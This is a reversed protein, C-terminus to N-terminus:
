SRAELKGARIISRIYDNVTSKGKGVKNAIEAFSKGAIYLEVANAKWQDAENLRTNARAAKARVVALEAELADMRQRLDRQNRVNQSGSFLLEAFGSYTANQLTSKHTQSLMRGEKLDQLVPHDKKGALTKAIKKSHTQAAVRNAWEPARNHEKGYAELMPRVAPKTGAHVSDFISDVIYNHDQQSVRQAKNGQATRKRYFERREAEQKAHFQQPTMSEPGPESPLRKVAEIHSAVGCKGEIQERTCGQKLMEIAQCVLSEIFM